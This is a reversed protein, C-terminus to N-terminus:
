PADFKFLEMWLHDPYAQSKGEPVITSFFYLSDSNDRLLNNYALTKIFWLIKTIVKKKKTATKKKKKVAPKKKKKLQTLDLVETYLIADKGRIIVYTILTSAAFLGSGLLIIKDLFFRRLLRVDDNLIEDGLLFDANGTFLAWGYLASLFISTFLGIFISVVINEYTKSM